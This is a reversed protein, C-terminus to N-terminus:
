EALVGMLYRMVDNRSITGVLRGDEVVPVKKFQKSRLQSFVDELPTDVDFTVVRHAALALAKLSMVEDAMDTFAEVSDCGDDLNRVVYYGLDFDAPRRASLARLIDGDSIFGRIRYESDVIPVGNTHMQVLIRAVDRVTAHIDVVYADKRMVARLTPAPRRDPDLEEPMLVVPTLKRHRLGHAFFLSVVLGVIAIVAAVMVANSFGAAQALEFAAGNGSATSAGKEVLGVFLSPGFSASVMILTNMTAIGDPHERRALTGLGATQSPSFVLGVGAYVVVSAAVTVLLALSEGTAAIAVQGVSILAFGVPLLPWPGRRDMIRGGLIATVANVGIAPLILAGAALASMAFSSEFYVPLLIGMSFTTMMSVVVLLASLAFSPNHMLPRMNLIPNDIREQRLAFALLLALSVLTAVAGVLPRSSIEGLGYVFLPLSLMALVLSPFDLKAASTEAFDRVTPIGALAVVVAVAAPLAFIARWGFMTVAFGSMVPAFAPGLTIAANGISLYTGMKERPACALVANMMIPTFTGSGVAQLLRAALLLPFSPAFVCLVEGAVFCAAAFAFLARVRFRQMLFAMLAVIVATIAMYGTVLWQATTSAVGFEAMIDVLAVNVISENFASVFAAAYLVVLMPMNGREKM